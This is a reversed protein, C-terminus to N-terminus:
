AHPSDKDEGVRRLLVGAVARLAATGAGSLVSLTLDGGSASLVGSFALVGAVASEKASAVWFRKTFM